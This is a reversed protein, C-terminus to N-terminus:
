LEHHEEILSAVLTPAHTSVSPFISADEAVAHHRLVCVVCGASRAVAFDHELDAVLAATEVPDAFDNTQLRSGLQYIMSRLAKHITTFLDETAPM